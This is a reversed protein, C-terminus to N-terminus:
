QSTSVSADNGTIWKQTRALADVENELDTIVEPMGVWSGVYDEVQKKRGDISISLVYTPNDTVEARYISDMSYFDAAVFKKALNRVEAPDLGATHKGTAVVYADGEFVIGDTSVTVTYSPCRGYCVTRQLTIIVKSDPRVAPAAVHMKPLREPPVLDVYEEVEATIATGDKEFPTFRWQRVEAQIEPWHKLPEPDGHPAADVVDGTPSVTLTLRLQNFGSSVGELPFTRRHPKIEHTRAEAHDFSPYSPRNDNQAWLLAAWFVCIVRGITRNM